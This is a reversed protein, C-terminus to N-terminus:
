PRPPPAGPSGWSSGGDWSAADERARRAAEEALADARQAHQLAAAPDPGALEGAAALHRQAEALRTRATGGVAGRRTAVVDEAAEVEARAALLAQELAARAQQDERASTEVAGRAADLAREAGVVRHLAGLPDTRAQAQAVDATALAGAAAAALQASGPAGAP